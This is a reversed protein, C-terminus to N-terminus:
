PTKFPEKRSPRTLLPQATDHLPHQLWNCLWSATMMHQHVPLAAHMWPGGIINLCRVRAVWKNASTYAPCAAM